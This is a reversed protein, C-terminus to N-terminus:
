SRPAARRSAAGPPRRHASAVSTRNGGQRKASYLRRDAERLLSRLSAGAGASAVSVGVSATVRVPEPSFAPLSVPDDLLHVVRDALDAAESASGLDPMLVVFEDGGVRAVVDDKRVVGALRRSVVVLLEDGALHGLTDNVPKFGDLDLLLLGVVRQGEADPAAALAQEARRDLERRNALGTLPDTTALRELEARLPVLAMEAETRATVDSVLVFFGAVEGNEDVDPVYAAQSYRTAGSADVITRDFHQAEGALAARMYPENLAFLEAGLLERIHMRSIQAPALGFWELYAQNALVNRLDRDWYGIMAPVGDVAARLLREEPCPAPGVHTRTM